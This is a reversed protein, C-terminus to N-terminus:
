LNITCHGCNPCLHPCSTDDEECCCEVHSVDDNSKNEKSIDEDPTNLGSDEDSFDNEVFVVEGDDIYCTLTRDDEFYTIIADEGALSLAKILKTPVCISTHSFRETM